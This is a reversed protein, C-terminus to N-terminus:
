KMKMGNKENKATARRQRVMAPTGDLYGASCGVVLDSMAVGAEVLALSAANICVPLVGGDSQIVHLYIDIQTRPVACM